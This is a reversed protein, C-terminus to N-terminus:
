LPSKVAIQSARIKISSPRPTSRCKRKLGKALLENLRYIPPLPRTRSRHCYIVCPRRLNFAHIDGDLVLGLWHGIELTLLPQVAKAATAGPKSAMIFLNGTCKYAHLKRFESRDLQQLM